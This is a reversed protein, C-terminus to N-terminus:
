KGGGVGERSPALESVLAEATQALVGLPSVSLGATYELAFDVPLPDSVLRARPRSPHPAKLLYELALRELDGGSLQRGAALESFLRRWQFAESRQRDPRALHTLWGALIKRAIQDTSRVPFHALAIRGLPEAGLTESSARIAHNGQTLATREDRAIQLPVLVKWWRPESRKRHTIRELPNLLSPDDLATPVYSQLVVRAPVEHSVTGLARELGARDAPVLFEDADLPVVWDAEHERSAERMLATTVQWQRQVVSPESKTRVPLGDRELKRLIEPTRDVSSHDIVLMLDFLGAHYRVFAEIIDEENRAMTIAVIKM